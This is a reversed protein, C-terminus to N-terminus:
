GDLLKFLSTVGAGTGGKSQYEFLPEETWATGAIDLHIWPLGEAFERIFLAAAITGCCSGGMNKLDAVKSKIMNEQEEYFPLRWYREGSKKYANRFEDYFEQSDTVLGATSYGLMQVVSGTLTAIDLVRTIGERHVAYSVADALILRGEADTNCIEITKGAYSTIVDGPVLSDGAIRNECMPIIGVVNIPAKRKALAIVTAAVAAGGAMDGKIGMMSGAAKLCYGGTDCTVGKGILGTKGQSEENGQYRMVLLCPKHPSSEGVALLGGMKRERIAEYDLIEWEVGNKELLMGAEEAFRQPTLFNGPLNVMDRVWCVSEALICGKLIEDKIQETESSGTLEVCIGDERRQRDPGPPEYDGLCIGQVLESLLEPHEPVLTGIDMSFHRINKEKMEKVAKAAAEKYEKIGPERESLGVLLLTLGEREPWFLTSLYNGDFLPAATLAEDRGRFFQVQVQATSEKVIRIEAM